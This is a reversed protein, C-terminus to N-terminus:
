QTENEQKRQAKQRDYELQERREAKQRREFIKELPGLV